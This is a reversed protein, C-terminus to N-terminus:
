ISTDKLMARLLRMAKTLEFEVSKVTISLKEAIEKYTREHIRNMIFVERTRGPLSDIAKYLPSQVNDPFIKCPDLVELTSIKLNVMRSAHDTLKGVVDAQM